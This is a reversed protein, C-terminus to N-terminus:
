EANRCNMSPHTADMDRVGGRGTSLTSDVAARDRRSEDCRRVAVKEDKDISGFGCGLEIPSLRRQSRDFFPELEPSASRFRELELPLFNAFSAIYHLTRLTALAAPAPAIVHFSPELVNVLFVTASSVVEERVRSAVSRTQRSMLDANAYLSRNSPIVLSTVLLLGRIPILPYSIAVFSKPFLADCCKPVM